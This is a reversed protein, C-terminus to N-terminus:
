TQTDLTYRKTVLRVERQRPPLLPRLNKPVAQGVAPSQLAPAAPAQALAAVTAAIVAVTVLSPKLVQTLPRIELGLVPKSVAQVGFTTMLGTKFAMEVERM